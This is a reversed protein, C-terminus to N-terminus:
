PDAWTQLARGMAERAASGDNRDPSTQVVAYLFARVNTSTNRAGFHQVNGPFAVINNYDNVTVWKKNELLFVTGGSTEVDNTLAVIITWYCRDKDNDVHVPQGIAGPQVLMVHWVITASRCDEVLFTQEIEKNLRQFEQSRNKAEDVWERTLTGEYRGYHRMRPWRSRDLGATDFTTNGLKKSAEGHIDTPQIFPVNVRMPEPNKMLEILQMINSGSSTRRARVSPTADVHTVDLVTYLDARCM